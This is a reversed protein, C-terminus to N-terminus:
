RDPGEDLNRSGELLGLSVLFRNTGLVGSGFSFSCVALLMLIWTHNLVNYKYM